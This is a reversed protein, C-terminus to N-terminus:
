LEIAKAGPAVERFAALYDEAEQPSKLPDALRVWWRGDNETVLNFAWTFTGANEKNIPVTAIVAAQEAGVWVQAFTAKDWQFAQHMGDLSQQTFEGAITLSLARSYDSAVIYKLFQHLAAVAPHEPRAPVAPTNAEASPTQAEAASTQTPQDKKSCGCLCLAAILTGCWVRCM